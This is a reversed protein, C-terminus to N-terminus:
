PRCKYIGFTQRGESIESEAVVTDGGMSVAENRALTELEGAVKGPNREFAGVRSKLSAILEGERLCHEVGARDSVAVKEGEPTPKVWTCASLVALASMGAITKCIKYL